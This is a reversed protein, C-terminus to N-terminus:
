VLRCSLGVKQNNWNAGTRAKTQGASKTSCAM